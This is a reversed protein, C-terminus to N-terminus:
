PLPRPLRATLVPGKVTPSSHTLGPKQARTYAAGLRLACYVWYHTDAGRSLVSRAKVLHM